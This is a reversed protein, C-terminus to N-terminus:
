NSNPPKRRGKGSSKLQKQDSKCEEACYKTQEEEGFQQPVFAVAEVEKLGKREEFHAAVEDLVDKAKNAATPLM